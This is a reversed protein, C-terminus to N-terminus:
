LVPQPRPCAPTRRGAQGTGRTPTTIGPRTRRLRRTLWATVGFALGLVLFCVYVFLYTAPHIGGLRDNGLDAPFYRFTAILGAVGAVGVLSGAWALTRLLPRV